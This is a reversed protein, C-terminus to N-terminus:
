WWKFWGVSSPASSDSQTERMQEVRERQQRRILKEAKIRELEERVASSETPLRSHFRDSSPFLHDKYPLVHNHYWEPDGFHLLAVVPVFLYLSFKFIELNPGAMEDASEVLHFVLALSSTEGAFSSFSNPTELSLQM